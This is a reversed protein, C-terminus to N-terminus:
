NSVILVKLVESINKGSLRLLYIETPLGKLEIPYNHNAGIIVDRKEFVKRGAYAFIEIKCELVFDNTNLISFDGDNPNPAISVDIKTSYYNYVSTTDNDTSDTSTTDMCDFNFKELDFFEKIQEEIMCPREETFEVLKAQINESWADFSEPSNWRDVHRQVEPELISKLSDIRALVSDKRFEKKLIEAYRSIFQKRFESNKLLNRFLFTSEPPNPWEVDPDKATAHYFMNSQSHMFSADLDYLLWRWKSNPTNTCFWSMNNEPWDYNEFFMVTIYYDIFNEIDIANKVVEYYKPTNLSNMDIFELLEIYKEPTGSKCDMNAHGAIIDIDDKDVEYKYALHWKDLRDRIIHIGWYEGNIFVVVPRFNQGEVDLNFSADHAVMDAIMTQTSWEGMTSRLLFRKYENKPSQPMLQYDFTNKGYENRAYLRLSKQAAHRTSQGNIRLGCDQSFGIKGERDFYEIYVQREWDEGRQHYNGTWLHDNKDYNIGPVYIGREYGFLSDQDTVISIIPMKYKDYINSDVFFTSTHIKSILKGESFIACRLITAKEIVVNPSEWRKHTLKQGDIPTTPIESVVNAQQYKYNIPINSDYIASEITPDSGDLTYHIQGMGETRLILEFPELYYGNNHSFLVPYQGINSYGPTARSLIQINDSGDPLRGYSEDDELEIPPFSSILEGSSNYLLIPEGDSSIKFNTHPENRDKSSEGSAFILLYSNGVMSMNEIIWKSPEKIEDSLAFGSIDVPLSSDNYLEIWDSYNDYKDKITTENDSMVENIVVKSELQFPSLLFIIAILSVLIKTMLERKLLLCHNYAFISIKELYISV